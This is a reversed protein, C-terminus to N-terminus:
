LPFLYHADDMSILGLDVPDVDPGTDLIQNQDIVKFYNSFQDSKELPAFLAELGQELYDSTITLGLSIYGPRRLLAHALERPESFIRPPVQQQSSLNTASPSTKASSQSQVNLAQARGSADALLGLPNSIPDQDAITPPPCTSAPQQSQNECSNHKPTTRFSLISPSNLPMM